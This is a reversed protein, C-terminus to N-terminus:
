SQARRLRGNVDQVQYAIGFFEAQQSADMRAFLSALEHPLDEEVICTYNTGGFQLKPRTDKM